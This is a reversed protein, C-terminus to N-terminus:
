GQRKQNIALSLWSNKLFENTIRIGNKKKTRKYLFLAGSIIEILHHYKRHRFSKLSLKQLENELKQDEYITGTGTHNSTDKTNGFFTYTMSARGFQREDYNSDRDNKLTNNSLLNNFVTLKPLDKLDLYAMDHQFYSKDLENSYIYRSDEVAM